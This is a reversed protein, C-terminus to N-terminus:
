WIEWILVLANHTFSLKRFGSLLKVHFCCKLRLFESDITFILSHPIYLWQILFLIIQILCHVFNLTLVCILLYCIYLVMPILCGMNVCPILSRVLHKFFLFSRPATLILCCRVEMWPLDTPISSLVIHNFFRNVLFLIPQLSAYLWQLKPVIILYFAIPQHQMSIIISHYFM